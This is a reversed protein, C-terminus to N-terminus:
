AFALLAFISAVAALSVANSSILRDAANKGDKQNKKTLQIDSTDVNSTNLNAPAEVTSQGEKYGGSGFSHKDGVSKPSNAAKYFFVLPTLSVKERTQRSVKKIPHKTKYAAM